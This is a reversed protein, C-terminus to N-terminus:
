VCVYNFDAFIENSDQDAPGLVILLPDPDKKCDFFYTTSYFYRYGYYAM